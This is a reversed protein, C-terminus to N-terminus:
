TISTNTQEDIRLELVNHRRWAPGLANLRSLSLESFQGHHADMQKSTQGDGGMKFWQQPFVYTLFHQGAYGLAATPGGQWDNQGLKSETATPFIFTPGVALLWNGVDTLFSRTTSICM